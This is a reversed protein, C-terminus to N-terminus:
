VYKWRFGRWQAYDGRLTHSIGKPCMQLALAAAAISEFRAIEEGQMNLQVIPKANCMNKKWGSRDVTKLYSFNIRDRKITRRQKEAYVVKELNALQNNLGNGDINLVIDNGIPGRFALWVLRRVNHYGVKGEMALSVQLYDMRDGTFSNKNYCLKQSLMRGAVFQQKLRPHPIVRDLSKIRGLDSAQYYGEFGPIDKWKEGPLNAMELIQYPHKKMSRKTFDM